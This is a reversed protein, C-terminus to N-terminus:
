EVLGHYSGVSIVADVFKKATERDMIVTKGDVTLYISDEAYFSSRGLELDVSTKGGQDKITEEFFMTTAM